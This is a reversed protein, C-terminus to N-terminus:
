CNENLLKQLTIIPSNKFRETHANTIRYKKNKRTEMTHHKKRQPFLDRLKRDAFSQKIFSLSLTKRRAELTELHLLKLAKQHTEYDEELVLKVFM